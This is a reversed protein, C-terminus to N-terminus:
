SITLSRGAAMALPYVATCFDAADTGPVQVISDIEVAEMTETYWSGDVRQLETTDTQSVIAIRMRERDAALIVADVTKGSTYRITMRM